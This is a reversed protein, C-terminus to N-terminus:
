NKNSYIYIGLGILILILLGSGTNEGAFMGDIGEGAESLIYAKATPSAEGNDFVVNYKTTTVSTDTGDSATITYEYNGDPVGSLSLYCTDSSHTMTETSRGTPSLDLWTLTCSSTNEGVVTANIRVDTDGGDLTTDDAPQVASPMTPVSDNVQVGTSTDTSTNTADTALTATLGFVYENDDELASAPIATTNLCLQITLASCNRDTYSFLTVASSNATNASYASWTINWLKETGNINIATGDLKTTGGVVTGTDAPTTVTVSQAAAEVGIAILSLLLIPLILLTTTKKNIEM